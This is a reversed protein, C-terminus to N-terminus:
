DNWQSSVSTELVHCDSGKSRVMVTLLRISPHISPHLSLCASLLWPTELMIAAQQDMAHLMDLKGRLEIHRQVLNGTRM